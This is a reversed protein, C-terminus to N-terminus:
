STAYITVQAHQHFPELDGDNDAPGILVFPEGPSHFSHLDLLVDHTDLIPCLVNSVRDEFDQPIAKVCMNRNLNRDGMRSKREVALPNTRPIFTVSGRTLHIRGEEIDRITQEIAVTGALENGHVAGTILLKPGKRLGHFTTSKVCTPICETPM